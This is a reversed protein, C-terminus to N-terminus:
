VIRPVFVLFIHYTCCNKSTSGASLPASQKGGRLVFPSSFMLGPRVSPYNATPTPLCGWHACCCGTVGCIPHVDVYIPKTAPFLFVVTPRVRCLVGSSDAVCRTSSVCFSRIWFRSGILCCTRIQCDSTLQLIHGGGHGVAHGCFNDRTVQCRRYKALAHSFPAAYMEHQLMGATQACSDRSVITHSAVSQSLSM